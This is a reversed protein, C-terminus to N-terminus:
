EEKMYNAFDEFSEIDCHRSGDIDFWENRKEFWKKAKEIFADTQTYEVKDEGETTMWEENLALLDINKDLYLKEPAKNPKM